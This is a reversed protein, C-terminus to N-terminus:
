TCIIICFGDIVDFARSRVQDTAIIVRKGVALCARAIALAGLPGDTETPPSYDLLCPFGTIIVVRRANIIRDAASKLEGSLCLPGIGRKGEDRQVVAEIKAIAVAIQADNLLRKTSKYRRISMSIFASALYFSFGLLKSSSQLGSIIASM